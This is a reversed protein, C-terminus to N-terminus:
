PNDRQAIDFSIIETGFVHKVSKEDKEEMTEEKYPQLDKAPYSTNFGEGVTNYYIKDGDWHISEITHINHSPAIVKDGVKYPYKELFEELSLIIYDALNCMNDCCIWKKQVTNIYYVIKTNNGCNELANIGGLMELIEIVEEGRTPHGKIALDAM